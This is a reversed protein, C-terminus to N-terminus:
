KVQKKELPVEKLFFTIILGVLSFCAIIIFIESISHALAQRLANMVQNFITTGQLGMQSFMEQLQTQAGASVLAQPNQAISALKEISVVSKADAPIRNIFDPAFSSNMFSNLISLGFAGGISRFFPVSASAVGLMKYPVANQVAITFIPMNMGLGVGTILEYGIVTPYSTNVTLRSLLFTGLTILFVGILCQIRYHGGTRSLIQGSVVSSIIMGILMPILLNGSTTASIGLVGQCFLPIFIICSFMAIATFFIVLNSIAVIRNKLLSLPIIPECARNEIFIFLGLMAASFIFLGVIQPSSWTYESSSWSLALMIPVITFILVILGFYDLNHRSNDPRSKPFFKIFLIVVLIGLPVNVFFIWHWSLTDTLLGGISPGIIASLGTAISIYGQYKGREIPPFLDGMVTIANAMMTGGGIGQVGRFIVLQTMTDSLGCAFSSSIFIILGAIYFPKRGYMDILKGAVPITVASTIIYITTIWTYHSFGGLDTIIRPMATSVITQDLSSLFMALMVGILTWIVQPRPLSRFGNADVSLNEM